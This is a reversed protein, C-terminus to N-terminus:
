PNRFVYKSITLAQQCVRNPVKLFISYQKANEICKPRGTCNMKKVVTM